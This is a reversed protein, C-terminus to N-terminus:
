AEFKKMADIWKVPLEISKNLTYDMAVLVVKGNACEILQENQKKVISNAITISKTGIKIVKSFCFIEDTLLIPVLYDIETHALIFGEKDWNIKEKYVANFYNIRGLEFYTLYIVNNVHGLRDLDSFRLQLPTVHKFDRFQM